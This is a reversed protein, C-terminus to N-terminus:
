RNAAGQRLWKLLVKQCDTPEAAPKHDDKDTDYEVSWGDWERFAHYSWDWGHAEFISILDDLYAAAGPAWRIASFEGVYMHVRYRQAFEIAPGMSKELAAKDWTMNAIRGPYAIPESPGFVGQHTFEHPNYM